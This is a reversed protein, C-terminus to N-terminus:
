SPGQPRRAPPKPRKPRQKPRNAPTERWIGDAHKYLGAGQYTKQYENAYREFDEPPIRGFDTAPHGEIRIGHTNLMERLKKVLRVRWNGGLANGLQDLETRFGHTGQINRIQATEHGTNDINPTHGLTAITEGSPAIVHWYLKAEPHGHDSHQITFGSPLAIDPRKKWQQVRVTANRMFQLAQRFPAHAYHKWYTEAAQILAPGTGFHTKMQEISNLLDRRIQATTKNPNDLALRAGITGVLQQFQYQTLGLQPLHPSGNPVGNTVGPTLPKGPIFEHLINRLRGDEHVANQENTDRWM